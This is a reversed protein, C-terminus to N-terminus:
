ADDERDDDTDEAASGAGSPPTTEGGSVDEYGGEGPSPTIPAESPEEGTGTTEAM